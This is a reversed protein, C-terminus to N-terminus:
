VMGSKVHRDLKKPIRMDIHTELTLRVGLADTRAIHM